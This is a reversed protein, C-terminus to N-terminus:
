PKRRVVAVHRFDHLVEYNFDEALASINMCEFHNSLVHETTDDFWRFPGRYIVKADPPCMMRAAERVLKMAPVHEYALVNDSM